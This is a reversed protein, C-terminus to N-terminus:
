VPPEQKLQAIVQDVTMGKSAAHAALAAQSLQELKLAIGAFASVPSPVSAMVETAVELALIIKDFVSTSAQVPPAPTAM